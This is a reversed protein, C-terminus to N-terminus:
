NPTLIMPVIDILVMDSQVVVLDMVAHANLQVVVLFLFFGLRKLNIPYDAFVSVHCIMLSAPDVICGGFRGFCLLWCFSFVVGVSSTKSRAKCRIRLM